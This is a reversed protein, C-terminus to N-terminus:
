NLCYNPSSLLAFVFNIECKGCAFVCSSFCAPLVFSLLLTLGFDNVLRAGAVVDFFNGAVEVLLICELWWAASLLNGKTLGVAVVIGGSLTVLFLRFDQALHLDAVSKWRTAM